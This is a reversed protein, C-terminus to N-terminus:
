LPGRGPQNWETGLFNRGQSLTRQRRDRSRPVSRLLLGATLLSLSLGM